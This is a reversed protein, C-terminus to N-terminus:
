GPGPMRNNKAPNDPPTTSQGPHPPRTLTDPNSRGGGSSSGGSSAGGSSSGGSSTGGSSAGPTAVNRMSHDVRQAPEQAPYPHSPESGPAAGAAPPEARVHQALITATAALLVLGMTRSAPVM